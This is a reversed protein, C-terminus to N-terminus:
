GVADLDAPTVTSPRGPAPRDPLAAFWGALFAKLSTSVTQEHRNLSRAIQPITQGLDSLRVM